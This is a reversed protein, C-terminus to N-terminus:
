QYQAKAAACSLMMQQLMKETEIRMRREHKYLKEYVAADNVNNETEAFNPSESMDIGYRQIMNAWKTYLTTPKLMNTISFTFLIAQDIKKLDDDSLTDVQFALRSKDVSFVQECVAFAKRGDVKTKVHTPASCKQKSTLYVVNVFGAHENLVDNSVIIAFRNSWMECGTTQTEGQEIHWVQGKRPNKDMIYQREKNRKFKM